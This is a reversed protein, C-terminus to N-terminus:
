TIDPSDNHTENLLLVRGSEHAIALESSFRETTITSKTDTEADYSVTEDYQKVSRWRAIHRTEGEGFVGNLLGATCLLGVHGSHLPTLPRADQLQPGFTFFTRIQAWSKSRLMLDEVQDFPLGEYKITAPSSPPVSYDPIGDELTEIQSFSRSCRNLYSRQSDQLKADVKSFVGFVVVQKYLVSEPDQLGYVRIKSFHSSLIASCSDIAKHPIVFVLIGKNVLWRYCHSLFLYEMRQNAFAGMEIDYPPNLYLMSFQHQNVKSELANCHTTQIGNQSAAAARDADLEIGYLTTTAGDTVQLLAAGTGVCPDVISCHKDSFMLRKRIRDGEATPLPYYGLKLRGQSRM